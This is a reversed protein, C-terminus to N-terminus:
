SAAAPLTNAVSVYIDNMHGGFTGMTTLAIICILGILVAYETATPGDDSCLFRHITKKLVDMKMGGESQKDNRTKIYVGCEACLAGVSRYTHVRWYSGPCHLRFFYFIVQGMIIHLIVDLYITCFVKKVEHLQGYWLVINVM